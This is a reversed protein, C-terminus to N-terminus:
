EGRKALLVAGVIGVLLILGLIEFPVLYAGFAVRGFDAATGFGAPVPRWSFDPLGRLARLTLLCGASCILASVIFRGRRLRMEELEKEEQSVLMIVFIILVVIAGAYVLIQLAFLLHAELMAFLGAVAILSVGLGIAASLPSKRTVTVLGGAVSIAAFIWFFIPSSSMAMPVEHAEM